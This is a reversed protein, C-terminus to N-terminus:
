DELINDLAEEMEVMHQSPKEEEDDDNHQVIGRGTPEDFKGNTADVVGELLEVIETVKEEANEATLEKDQLLKIANECLTPPKGELIGEVIENVKDAEEREEIGEQMAKVDEALKNVREDKKDLQEKLKKIELDKEDPTLSETKSVNVGCSPCFKGKGVTGGCEPCKAEVIEEEDDEDGEEVTEFEQEVYQTMFNEVEDRVIEEDSEQVAKVAVKKSFAEVKPNSFVYKEWDEDSLGELIKKLEDVVDEENKNENFDTNVAGESAQDIVHDYTNLVYDDNVVEITKGIWKSNSESFSEHQENYQVETASGKGRSSFGVEAGARVAAAYDRGDASDIVDMSGPQEGSEKISLGTLIGIRRRPDPNTGKPPHGALIHVARRKIRPQIAEVQRTALAISYLRGNETIKGAHGFQGRVQMIVGPPLKSKKGEEMNEIDEVIEFRSMYPIAETLIKSKM